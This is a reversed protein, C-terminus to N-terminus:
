RRRRVPPLAIDPLHELRPPREDHPYNTILLADIQIDFPAGTAKVYSAGARALRRIKESDIKFDDDYHGIMRTKVEILVLRNDHRCLIDVEVNGIRVNRGLIAYGLGALLEWAAEEGVKGIATTTSSM